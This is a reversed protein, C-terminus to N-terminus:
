VGPTLLLAKVEAVDLKVWGKKSETPLKLNSFIEGVITSENDIFQEGYVGKRIIFNSHQEKVISRTGVIITGAEVKNTVFPTLGGFQLSEPIFQQAGSEDQLYVAEAADAPNIFVVDPEYNRAQCWLKGAGIVSYVSPKVIKGDLGSTTYTSCWASIDALVGDQYARLVDDEFMSIIDLILQEFDIEVEETMEIRGAYKKRTAYKYLFKKDVLPKTNGESVVSVVGDGAGVQEKWQWTQPVKSVQRSNIADLIFNKPYQIVTLEMDDFMNPNNIAQAGSIVNTTSMMASAARKAKFQIEWPAGGMRARKIDDKKAELMKRLAYKDNSSLGREAKAELESVQQALKRIVGMVAQGEEITGIKDSLDQLQRNRAVEDEKFAQEVGQAIGEYFAEQEVTLPETHKSRCITMFADKKM